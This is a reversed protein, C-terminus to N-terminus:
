RPTLHFKHRGPGALLPSDGRTTEIALDLTTYTKRLSETIPDKTYNLLVASVSDALRPALGRLIWGILIKTYLLVSM